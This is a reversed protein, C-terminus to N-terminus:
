LDARPIPNKLNFVLKIYDKKHHTGATYFLTHFSFYAYLNGTYIYKSTFLIYTHHFPNTPLISPDKTHLPYHM